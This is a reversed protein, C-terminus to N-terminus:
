KPDVKSDPETVEIPRDAQGTGMTTIFRATIAESWSYILVGMM